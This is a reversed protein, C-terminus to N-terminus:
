WFQEAVILDGGPVFEASENLFEWEAELIETERFYIAKSGSKLKWHLLRFFFRLSELLVEDYSPRICSSLM